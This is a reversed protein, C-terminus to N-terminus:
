KYRLGMGNVVNSLEENRGGRPSGGKQQRVGLTATFTPEMSCRLCRTPEARSRKSVSAQGAPYLNYRQSCGSQLPPRGQDWEGEEYRNQWSVHGLLIRPTVAQMAPPLTPLLRTHPHQPGYHVSNPAWIGM